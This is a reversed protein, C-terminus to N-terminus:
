RPAGLKDLHATLKKECTALVAGGGDKAAEKAAEALDRALGRAPAILASAPTATAGTPLAGHQAIVLDVARSFLEEDRGIARVGAGYLCGLLEQWRAFAARDGDLSGVLFSWGLEALFLAPEGKHAGLLTREFLSGKGEPTHTLTPLADGGEGGAVIARDIPAILAPWAANQEVPYPRLEERLGGEALMGMYQAARFPEIPLLMGEDCSRVVTEGRDVWIWGVIRNLGDSVEVRHLGAPPELFGRFKPGGPVKALDIRVLDGRAELLVIATTRM